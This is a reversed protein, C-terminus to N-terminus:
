EEGEERVPICADKIADIVREYCEQILAGQCFDKYKGEASDDLLDIFAHSVTGEIESLGIVRANWKAKPVEMDFDFTTRINCETCKAYYVQELERVEAEGGCFPCRRLEQSM